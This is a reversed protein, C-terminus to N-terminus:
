HEGRLAEAVRGSNVNYINAIQQQTLTPDAEFADRIKQALEPTMPESVNPRRGNVFVKKKYLTLGEREVRHLYTDAQALTQSSVVGYIAKALATVGQERVDSM